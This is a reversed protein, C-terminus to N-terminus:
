KKTKCTNIGFLGYLGCIGFLGTAVMVVTGVLFWWNVTVALILFVVALGYRVYSDIKGVNKKM